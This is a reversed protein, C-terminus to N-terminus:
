RAARYSFPLERATVCRALFDVYDQDHFMELEDKTAPRPQYMDMQRHLGYGMVLHNTVTLRHPKMPHREQARLTASVDADQVSVVGGLLPRSCARWLPIRRRGQCLLVVGTTGLSGACGSGLPHALLDAGMWPLLVRRDSARSCGDASSPIHSVGVPSGGTFGGRWSEGELYAGSATRKLGGLVSMGAEDRRIPEYEQVAPASADDLNFFPAASFTPHLLSGPTCAATM